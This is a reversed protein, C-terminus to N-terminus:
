VEIIETKIVRRVQVQQVKMHADVAHRAVGRVARQETREAEGKWDCGSVACVVRYGVRPERKKKTARQEAV